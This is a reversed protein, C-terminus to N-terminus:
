PDVDTRQVSALLDGPAQAVVAMGPHLDHPSRHHEVARRQRCTVPGRRAFLCHELEAGGIRCFEQQEIERLRANARVHDLLPWVIVSVMVIRPMAPLRGWLEKLAARSRAAAAAAGAPQVTSMAEMLPM